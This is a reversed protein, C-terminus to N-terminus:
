LADRKKTTKAGPAPPGAAASFSVRCGTANM